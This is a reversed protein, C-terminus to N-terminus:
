EFGKDLGVFDTWYCINEIIIESSLSEHVASALKSLVFNELLELRPLCYSKKLPVVRKKTTVLKVYIKLFLWSVRQVFSMLDGQISNVIKAFFEM